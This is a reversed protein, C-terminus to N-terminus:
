VQAVETKAGARRWAGKSRGGAEGREERRPDGAGRFAFAAAAQASRAGGAQPGRCLPAPPQGACAGSGKQGSRREAGWHQSSLGTGSPAPSLASAKDKRSPIICGGGLAESGPAATQSASHPVPEGKPPIGPSGPISSKTQQRECFRAETGLSTGRPRQSFKGTSAYPYLEPHSLRARQPTPHAPPPRPLQPM